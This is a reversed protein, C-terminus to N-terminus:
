IHKVGASKSAGWPLKFLEASGIFCLLDIALNCLIRHFHRIFQQFPFANAWQDDPIDAGAAPKDHGKAVKIKFLGNQPKFALDPPQNVAAYIKKDDFGLNIDLLAPGGQKRDFLNAAPKGHDGHGKIFGPV